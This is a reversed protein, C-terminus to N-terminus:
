VLSAMLEQAVTLWAVELPMATDCGELPEGPALLLPLEQGLVLAQMIATAELPERQDGLGCLITQVHEGPRAGKLVEDLQRVSVVRANGQLIWEHLCLEFLGREPTTDIIVDHGVFCVVLELSEKGLHKELRRMLELTVGCLLITGQWSAGLHKVRLGAVAEGYLVLNIRRKPRTLIAEDRHYYLLEGEAYRVDFLDIAGAKPCEEMYGLESAVLNEISGVTSVSSFGGAPYTSEDALPSIVSGWPRQKGRVRQPINKAVWQAADFAQGLAVRQALGRLHESHAVLYVEAPTLLGAVLNAHAALEEYQQALRESVAPVEALLARGLMLLESSEYQGLETIDRRRLTEGGAFSLRRLLADLVIAVTAPALDPKTQAFAEILGLYSESQVLRGLFNDEYLRVARVLRAPVEGTLVAPHLSEGALLAAVDVVVGLPPMQPLEPLAALLLKAAEGMDLGEAQASLTIGALAWANDPTEQTM